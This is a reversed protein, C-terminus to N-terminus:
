NAGLLNTGGDNVPKDKVQVHARAKMVEDFM